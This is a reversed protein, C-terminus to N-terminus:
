LAIWMVFTGALAIFMAVPNARGGIPSKRTLFLVALLLSFALTLVANGLGLSWPLWAQVGPGSPTTIAVLAVGKVKAVALLGFLAAPLLRNFISQALPPRSAM